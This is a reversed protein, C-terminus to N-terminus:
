SPNGGKPREGSGRCAFCRTAKYGILVVHVGDDDLLEERAVLVIGRGFCAACCVCPNKFCRCTKM